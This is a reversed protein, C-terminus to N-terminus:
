FVKKVSVFVIALFVEMLLSLLMNPWIQSIEVCKIEGPHSLIGNRFPSGFYEGLLVLGCGHVKGFEALGV